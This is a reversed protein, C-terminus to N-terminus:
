IREILKGPLVRVLNKMELGFILSNLEYIPMNCKKALEDLELKDSFLTEYVIAENIDLNLNLKPKNKKSITKNNLGLVNVVDEANTLVNAVQNKILNNCGKGNIDSPRGPVAFVERNYSHAIDATVLSGGKEGSEIVITAESLGAIIRNRRLFNGRVIKTESKFDTLLCGSDNISNIYKSHVAPYINDLGHAICGVTQLGCSLASKHAYIDTGYALGSVIIPNYAKLDDILGEVFQIGSSSVKRTGVVSLILRNSFDLNNSQFLYVPSDYCQSLLFPYNEDKYFKVTINNRNIFDFEKEAKILLAKDNLHNYFKSGIGSVKLINSKKDKFIAESSGCAELLKKITVDGTNPVSSLALLYFLETETIM